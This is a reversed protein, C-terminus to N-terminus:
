LLMIEEVRVQNTKEHLPFSLKCNKGNCKFPVHDAPMMTELKGRIDESLNVPKGAEIAHFSQVIM